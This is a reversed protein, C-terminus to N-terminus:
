IGHEVEKLNKKLKKTKSIKGIETQKFKTKDRHKSLPEHEEHCIEGTLNNKVVQDYKDEIRDISRHETVGLPYKEKDKSPKYGHFVEKIPRKYGLRKQKANTSDTPHITESLEIKYKKGKKTQKTNKSFEKRM